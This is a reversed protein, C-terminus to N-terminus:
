MQSLLKMKLQQFEADTLAGKQYLEAYKQLKQTVDEQQNGGSLQQPPQAYNAQQQQAKLREIEMQQQELQYNQQQNAAQQQYRNKARNNAIAGGIAFSALRGRM